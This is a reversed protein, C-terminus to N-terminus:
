AEADKGASAGRGARRRERVRGNQSMGEIQALVKEIDKLRGAIGYTVAPPITRNM